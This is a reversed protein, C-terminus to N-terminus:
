IASHKMPQCDYEVLNSSSFSSKANREIAALLCTTLEDDAYLILRKYKRGTQMKEASSKLLGSVRRELVTDVVNVDSMKCLLVHSQYVAALRIVVNWASQREQV